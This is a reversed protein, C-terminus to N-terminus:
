PLLALTLPPLHYDLVPCFIDFTPLLAWLCLGHHWFCAQDSQGDIKMSVDYINAIWKRLCHPIVTMCPLLTVCHASRGIRLLLCESLSFVIKMSHLILRMRWILFSPVSLVIREAVLCTRM